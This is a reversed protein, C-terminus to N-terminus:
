TPNGEDTTTVASGDPDSATDAAETIAEREDSLLSQALNQQTKRGSRARNILPLALSFAALALLLLAVPSVVELFPKTPLIVLTRALNEEALPGLLLGLVVPGAPFGARKMIVGLIGFVLMTGVAFLSNSTAYTGIICFVLIISWLYHNPVDLLKVMGRMRVLSVGLSLVTAIVMIATISM